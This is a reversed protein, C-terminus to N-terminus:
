INITTIKETDELPKGNEDIYYLTYSGEDLGDSLIIVGNEDVYDEVEERNSYIVTSDERINAVFPKSLIGKVTSYEESNNFLRLHKM